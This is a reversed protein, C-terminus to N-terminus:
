MTATGACIAAKIGGHADSIVLEVGSLGRSVLSRLFETWADTDETTVIDFSVIESAQVIEASRGASAPRVARSRTRGVVEDRRWRGRRVPM